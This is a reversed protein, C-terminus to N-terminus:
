GEGASYEQGPGGARASRATDTETDVPPAPETGAADTSSTPDGLLQNVPNPVGTAEATSTASGEEVGEEAVLDPANRLPLDKDPSTMCRGHGSLERV